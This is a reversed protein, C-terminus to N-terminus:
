AQLFTQNDEELLRLAKLHNANFGYTEIARAYTETTLDCMPLKIGLSDAMERALYM